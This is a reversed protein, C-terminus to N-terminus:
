PPGLHVSSRLGSPVSPGGAVGGMGALDMVSAAALLVGRQADFWVTDAVPGEIDQWWATTQAPDQWGGQRIHMRGEGALQAITTGLSDILRLVRYRRRVEYATSGYPQQGRISVTDMWSLGATLEPVGSPLRPFLDVRASPLEAVSRGGVALLRGTPDITYTEEFQFPEGVGKLSVWVALGEPSSSAKRSELTRTTVPTGLTDSGRLFYLLYTNVSAYHLTYSTAQYRVRSQATGASTGATCLLALLLVSVPRPM